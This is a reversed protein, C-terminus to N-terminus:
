DVGTQAKTWAWRRRLLEVSEAGTRKRPAPGRPILAAEDLTKIGDVMRAALADRTGVVRGQGYNLLVDSPQVGRNRAVARLFGRYADDVSAQIAARAEASLPEDPNGETKFKGSSIYTPKIGVKENLASWDIHMAYVGVSGVESGPAAYLESAASGIWYAASAALSNAVAIIPKSERAKYIANSLEETGAVAGGPSDIDLVISDVSPDAVAARLQAQIEMTSTYSFWSPRQALVGYIRILGIKTATASSRRAAANTQFALRDLRTEGSRLRSELDTLARRTLCWILPTHEIM